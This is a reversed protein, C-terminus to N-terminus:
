KQTNDAPAPELLNLTFTKSGNIVFLAAVQDETASPLYYAKDGLGDEKQLRPQLIEYTDDFKQITFDGELLRIELGYVTDLTSISPDAFEYECGSSDKFSEPDPESAAKGFVSLFDAKTFLTCPDATSTGTNSGAQTPQHTPAHAPTTAAQPPVTSNEPLQTFTTDGCAMLLGPWLVLLTLLYAQRLRSKFLEFM